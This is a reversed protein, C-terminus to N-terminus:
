ADFACPGGLRATGNTKRTASLGNFLGSGALREVGRELFLSRLVGRLFFLAIIIAIALFGLLIAYPDDDRGDERERLQHVAVQMAIIPRLLIDSMHLRRRNSPREGRTANARRFPLPQMLISMGGSPTFGRFGENSPESRTQEMAVLTQAVPRLPPFTPSRLRPLLMAFPDCLRAVNITVNSWTGPAGSMCRANRTRRHVHRRNPDGTAARGTMVRHEGDATVVGSPPM